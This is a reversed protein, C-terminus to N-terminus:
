LLLQQTPMQGLAQKESKKSQGGSPKRHGGHKVKESKPEVGRQELYEVVAARIADSQVSTETLTLLNQMDETALIVGYQKTDM